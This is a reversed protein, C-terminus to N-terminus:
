KERPYGKPSRKTGKKCIRIYDGHENIAEPIPKKKIITIRILDKLISNFIIDYNFGIKREKHLMNGSLLYENNIKNGVKIMASIGSIM